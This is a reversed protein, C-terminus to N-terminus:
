ENKEEIRQLEYYLVAAWGAVTVELNGKSIWHLFFYYLTLIFISSIYKIM